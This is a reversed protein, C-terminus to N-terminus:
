AIMQHVFLEAFNEAFFVRSVHSFQGLTMVCRKILVLCLQLLQLALLLLNHLGDQVTHRSFEQFIVSRSDFLAHSM